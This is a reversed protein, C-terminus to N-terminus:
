PAFQEGIITWFEDQDDNANLYVTDSAGDNYIGVALAGGDRTLGVRIAGGARLATHIVGLLREVDITSLDFGARSKKLADLRRKNGPGNGSGAPSRGGKGARLDNAM